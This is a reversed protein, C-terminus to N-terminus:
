ASQKGLRRGLKRLPNEYLVYAFGALVLTLATALLVFDWGSPELGASQLLRPALNHFLYVGYSLAGAQTALGAAVSGYASNRLLLLPYMVLAYGAACLLNFPADLMRRSDLGLGGYRLVYAYGLLLCGGLLALLAPRSQWSLERAQGQQVARYLWTGALFEPLIAPLHASLIRWVDAGAGRLYHAILGIGVTLLGLWWLRRGLLALLPLLLYFEIEVPLSWFAANFYYAEEFSRTTHLFALHRWLYGLKEPAEPMALAYALVAVFYLPYIRFFRRIYFARVAFGAGAQVAPPGARSLLLPAFVYGSIVFFLDVGTWLFDFGNPTMRIFPAYHMALVMLAALGRFLEIGM